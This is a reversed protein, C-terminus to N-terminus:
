IEAIKLRLRRSELKNWLEPNTSILKKRTSEWIKLKSWLYSDRQKEGYGGQLHHPLNKVSNLFFLERNRKDEASKSIAKVGMIRAEELLRSNYRYGRHKSINVMFSFAHALKTNNPYMYHLLRHALVHERYTLIVLNSDDDAGGICRPKIHHTETYGNVSERQLAKNILEDYIRSYNMVM